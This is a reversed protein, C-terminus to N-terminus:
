KNNEKNHTTRHIPALEKSVAIIACDDEDIFVAVQVPIGIAL